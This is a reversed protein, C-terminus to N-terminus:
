IFGILSPNYYKVGGNGRSLVLHDSWHRVKMPLNGVGWELKQGQFETYFEGTSIARYESSYIGGYITMNPENLCGITNLIGDLSIWKVISDLQLVLTADDCRPKEEVIEVSQFITQLSRIFKDNRNENQYSYAIKSVRSIKYGEHIKDEYERRLIKPYLFNPNIM